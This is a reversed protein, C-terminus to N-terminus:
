PVVYQWISVDQVRTSSTVLIIKFVEFIINEM